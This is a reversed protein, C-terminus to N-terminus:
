SAVAQMTYIQDIAVPVALGASQCDVDVAAVRETVFEAWKFKGVVPEKRGDIIQPVAAYCLKFRPTEPVIIVNEADIYPVSPTPAAQTPTASDYYEPYSWIGVTYPGATISGHYTGDSMRQPPKVLDLALNFLNQRSLFVDNKFFAKAANEGMIVNYRTGQFKGRQRVFTCGAQIDEFPDVGNTSWYNGAGLDVMSTALRNYNINDGNVLQVVGTQLVQACQREYARDIMNEILKMKTAVDTLFRFFIGEDISQASYLKDYLQLTTKDFFERYLPPIYIRETSKDFNNRNGETGRMVDSAVLEGAREVQISIELTPAIDDPFFSRLFRTPEPMQVYVDMLMQTYLGFADSQSIQM